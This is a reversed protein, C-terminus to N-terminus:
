KTASVAQIVTVPIAAPTFRSYVLSGNVAIGLVRDYWHPTTLKKFNATIAAFNSTTDDVNKLLKPFGIEFAKKFYNYAINIDNQLYHHIGIFYLSEPRSEDIKFSKEYLDLCVEWPKNLKFNALRAAEFLADIREQIFGGNIFTSRKLFFEFAM